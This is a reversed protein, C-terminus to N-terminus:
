LLQLLWRHWSPEAPLKSDRFFFFTPTTRCKLKDKFVHKTSDNSNGYLKLFVVNDAYYEAAKQTLLLLSPIPSMRQLADSLGAM